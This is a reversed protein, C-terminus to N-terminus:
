NETDDLSLNYTEVLTLFQRIQYPKAKGKQNQLNLQEALNPHQFIHHSGSVRVLRFGFSEVVSVLDTFAINQSSNLLKQFLKKRKTM